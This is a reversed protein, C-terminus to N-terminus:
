RSPSGESSRTSTIWTRSSRNAFSPGQGVEGNRNYRGIQGGLCLVGLAGPPQFAGTDRSVLFFGPEGPPLQSAHLTLDNVRVVRTGAVSLRAPLGTSNPFAPSCYPTGVPGVGEIAPTFQLNCQHWSRTIGEKEHVDSDDWCEFVDPPRRSRAGGIAVLPQEEDKDFGAELRAVTEM